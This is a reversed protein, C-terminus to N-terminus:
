ELNLSVISEYNSIAHISIVLFTLIHITEMQVETIKHTNAAYDRVIARYAM